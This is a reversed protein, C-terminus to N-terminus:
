YSKLAVYSNITLNFSLVEIGAMMADHVQM